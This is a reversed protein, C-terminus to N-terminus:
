ETEEAPHVIVVDDDGLEFNVSVSVNRYVNWPNDNWSGLDGDCNEPYDHCAEVVLFDETPQERLWAYMEKLEPYDDMYWKVYEWEYLVGASNKYCRNCDHFWRKKMEDSLKEVLETKLVLVVDSRVGM